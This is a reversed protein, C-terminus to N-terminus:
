AGFQRFHHDTHRYGLLAWGRRSLRGFAPHLPWGEGAPHTAFRQLLTAFTAVETPWTSQDIRALLEPATPSGKPWPLVYAVLRNLPPYRIPLREPVTPLEGIAMRFQDNVHTLMQPANMRGWRPRTDATLRALRELLEARRGEDWLSPAASDVLWWALLAVIVAAVLGSWLGTTRATQGWVVPALAATAIVSLAWLWLLPGLGRRRWLAAVSVLIGFVGYAAQTLTAAIQGSGSAYRWEDVASVSGWASLGAIVVAPIVVRLPKM